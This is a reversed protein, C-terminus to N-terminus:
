SAAQLKTKVGGDAIHKDRHTPHPCTLQEDWRDAAAVASLALVREGAAISSISGSTLMSQYASTSDGSPTDLVGAVLSCGGSMSVGNMSLSGNTDTFMTISGFSSRGSPLILAHESAGSTNLMALIGSNAAIGSFPPM